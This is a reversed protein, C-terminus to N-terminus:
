GIPGDDISGLNVFLNICGVTPDWPLGLAGPLSSYPQVALELHPATVEPGQPSNFFRRLCLICAVGAPWM